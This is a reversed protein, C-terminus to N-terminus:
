ICSTNHQWEFPDALLSPRMWSSSCHQLPKDPENQSRWKMIKKNNSNRSINPWSNINLDLPSGNLDRCTFTFQDSLTINNGISYFLVLCPSLNLYQSCLCLNQSSCVLHVFWPQTNYNLVLCWFFFFFHMSFDYM